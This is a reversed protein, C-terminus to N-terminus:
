GGDVQRQGRQRVSERRAEVDQARVRPNHEAAARAEIKMGEALTTAFGTDILRKYGVLVQPDTALMDAALRRCTPMLEAPEVVRNILGWREATAADLFNGTYSLEKARGVGVIRPLRQSLGWAPLYGVRGHSDAFRAATTAIRLDCALALEFGGTVAVGNIAGIIPGSFRAMAASPDKKSDGSVGVDAAGAGLEKLDLGACFARGAGTLIVVRVAPDDELAVFTEALRGRLALSLANMNQPRNLTVIALGDGAHEVLLVDESM